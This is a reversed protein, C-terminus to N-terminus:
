TTPKRRLLVVLLLAVLLVVLLALLGVVVWLLTNGGGDEASSSSATTTDDPSPSASGADSPSESASPSPTSTPSSSMMGEGDVDVAFDFSVPQNAADESLRVEFYYSGSEDVGDEDSEVRLTSATADSNSANEFDMQDFGVDYLRIELCCGYETDGYETLTAGLTQGPDADFSFWRAEAPNVDDAYTTGPTLAAAQTAASGGDIEEGMPSASWAAAPLGVLTAALAITLLLRRM